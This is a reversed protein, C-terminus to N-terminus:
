AINVMNAKSHDLHPRRSVPVVTFQEVLQVFCVTLVTIQRKVEVTGVVLDHRQLVLDLVVLLLYVRFGLADHQLGLHLLVLLV